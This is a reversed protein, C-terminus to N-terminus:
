PNSNKWRNFKRFLAIIDTYNVEKNLFKLRIEENEFLFEEAIEEYNLETIQTTGDTHKLIYRNEPQEDRLYKFAFLDYYGYAVKEFLKPKGKYMVTEFIMLNMKVTRINKVAISKTKQLTDDDNIFRINKTFSQVSKIRGFLTDGYNSVIYGNIYKKHYKIKTQAAVTTTLVTLLVTLVFAQLLNM